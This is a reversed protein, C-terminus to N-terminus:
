TKTYGKRSAEGTKRNRMSRKSTSCDTEEGKSRGAYNEKPHFHSNCLANTM